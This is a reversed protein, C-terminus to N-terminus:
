SARKKQTAIRMLGSLEKIAKTNEQVDTLQGVAGGSAAVSPTPNEAVSSAVPVATVVPSAEQSANGLALAGKAHEMSLEHTRRRNEALDEDKKRLAEEEGERKKLAVTDRRRIDKQKKNVEDTIKGQIKGEANKRDTQTYFQNQKMDEEWQHKTLSPPGKHKTYFIKLDSNIVEEMQEKLLERYYLFDQLTATVGPRMNHLYDRICVWSYNQTKTMESLLFEYTNSVGIGSAEKVMKLFTSERNLIASSWMETIKKSAKIWEHVRGLNKGSWFAISANESAGPTLSRDIKSKYENWALELNEGKMVAAQIDQKVGGELATTKNNRRTEM